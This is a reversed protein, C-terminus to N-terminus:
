GSRRRRRWWVLRAGLVVLVVANAALVALTLPDPPGAHGAHGEAEAPAAADADVPPPPGAPRGVAFAYAGSPESGDTLTVHYAVVYWGEDLPPLTERVGTGQITAVGRDVRQGAAATVTVHADGRRPRSGFALEVAPPAAALVAGRAPTATVVPDEPVRFLPRLLVVAGILLVLAAPVRRLAVGRRPDASTM